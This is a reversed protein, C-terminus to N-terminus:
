QHGQSQTAATAASMEWKCLTLWLFSNKYESTAPCLVANHLVAASSCHSFGSNQLVFYSNQKYIYVFIYILINSRSRAHLQGTDEEQQWYHPPNFIRLQSVINPRRVAAAGQAITNAGASAAWRLKNAPNISRPGPQPCKSM